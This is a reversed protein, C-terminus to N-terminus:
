GENRVIIKPKHERGWIWYVAWVLIVFWLPGFVIM